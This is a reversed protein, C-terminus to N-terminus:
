YEFLCAPLLSKPLAIDLDRGGLHYYDAARGSSHWSRVVSPSVSANDLYDDASKAFCIADFIRGDIVHDSFIASSVIDRFSSTPALKDVM